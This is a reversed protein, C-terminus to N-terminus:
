NSTDLQESNFTPRDLGLLEVYGHYLTNNKNVLSSSAAVTDLNCPPFLSGENEVCLKKM